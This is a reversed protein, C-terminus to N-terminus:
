PESLISLLATLGVRRFSTRCQEEAILDDLTEGWSPDFLLLALRSEEDKIREYATAIRQFEQPCRDPPNRRVAALYAQRITEDTDEPGVGLVHYPNPM